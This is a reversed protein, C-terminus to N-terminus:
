ESENATLGEEEAPLSIQETERRLQARELVEITGTARCFTDDIEIMVNKELIQIDKEELHRLYINFKETSLAELEEETYNRSIIEYEGYTDCYWYFPLYFTDTFHFQKYQTTKEYNRYPVSGFSLDLRRGFLELAYRKKTNGTRQQVEHEVAIQDEYGYQTRLMVDADANCYRYGVVEGADNNIDIRGSVLVTGEEVVDGKKVMPTGSRTVISDVVGAKDAVLDSATYSIESTEEAQGTLLNEKIDITMKTGSIRASAWIINPFEKRLESELQECDIRDKWQGCGSHQEELFTLITDDTVSSNGSIEINWIFRSLLFLLVAATGVGAFFLKRKRYRHLWFPFGYREIIRIRTGTKALYPKLEYFARITIRFRYGEEWKALDWILIDHNGCLNLFREPAYGTLEVLLYGGLYKLLSLM